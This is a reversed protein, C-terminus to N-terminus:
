LDFWLKPDKRIVLVSQTEWGWMLLNCELKGKMKRM